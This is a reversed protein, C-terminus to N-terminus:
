PYQSEGSGIGDTKQLTLYGVIRAAERVRPAQQGRIRTGLSPDEREHVQQRMGAPDDGNQRLLQNRWGHFRQALEHKAGFYFDFVGAFKETNRARVAHTLQRGGAEASWLRARPVELRIFDTDRPDVAVGAAIPDDASCLSQRLGSDGACDM